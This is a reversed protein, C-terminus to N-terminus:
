ASGKRRLAGAGHARRARPRLRTRPGPGWMWRDARRVVWRMVQAELASPLTVCGSARDQGPAPAGREARSRPAPAARRRSSWEDPLARIRRQQAPQGVGERPRRGAESPALPAPWRRRRCHRARTRLRSTPPGAPWWHDRERTAENRLQTGRSPARRRTPARRPRARMRDPGRVAGARLLAAAISSM